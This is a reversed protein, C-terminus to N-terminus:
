GPLLGDEVPQNRERVVCSPKNKVAPRLWAFWRDHEKRPQSTEATLMNSSSRILRDSAMRGLPNAVM